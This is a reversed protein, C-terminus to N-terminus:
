QLLPHMKFASQVGIGFAVKVPGPVPILSQGNSHLFPRVGDPLDHM